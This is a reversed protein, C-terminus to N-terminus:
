FGHRYCFKLNIHHAELFFCISQKIYQFFAITLIYSWLILTAIVDFINKILQGPSIRTQPNYLGTLINALNSPSINLISSLHNIDNSASTGNTLQTLLNLINVNTELEKESIFDTSFSYCSFLSCCILFGLVIKMKMKKRYKILISTFM